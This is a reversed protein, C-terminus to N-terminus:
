TAPVACCHGPPRANCICTCSTVAQSPSAQLAQTRVAMLSKSRGDIVPAFTCEAVEAAASERRM